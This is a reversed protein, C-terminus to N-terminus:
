QVVTEGAGSGLANMWYGPRRFEELGQFLAFRIDHVVRSICGSEDEVSASTVSSELDAMSCFHTL